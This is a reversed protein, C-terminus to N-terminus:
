GGKYIILTTTGYAGGIIKKVDILEREALEQIVRQFTKYSIFQGGKYECYMNFCVGIKVQDIKKSKLFDLVNNILQIAKIERNNM